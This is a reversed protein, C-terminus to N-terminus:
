NLWYLQGTVRQNSKVKDRVREILTDDSTYVISDNWHWCDRGEKNNHLDMKQHESELNGDRAVKNLEEQSKQEHATAFQYAWFESIYKSMLANWIAHRFADSEDGLGNFGYENNTYTYAKDKTIDTIYANAPSAVVLAKEYTNLSNWQSRIVEYSAQISVSGQNLAHMQGQQFGNPMNDILSVIDEVSLHPNQQKTQEIFEYFLAKSQSHPLSAYKANGMISTIDSQQLASGLEIGSSLNEENAFTYNAGLSLAVSMTIVTLKKM